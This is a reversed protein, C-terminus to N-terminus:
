GAAPQGLVGHVAERLLAALEDLSLDPVDIATTLVLGGLLASQACSFRVKDRLSTAPDNLIRRFEAELDYHANDHGERHLGEFAARNREHM